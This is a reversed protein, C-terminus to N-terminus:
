VYYLINLAHSFSIKHETCQKCENRKHHNNRRLLTYFDGDDCEPDFGDDITRLTILMTMPISATTKGNRKASVM